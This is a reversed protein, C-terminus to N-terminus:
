AARHHGRFQFLLGAAVVPFRRGPLCGIARKHLLKLLAALLRGRLQVQAIGIAHPRQGLGLARRLQGSTEIGIVDHLRHKAAEKLRRPAAVVIHGGAFFQPADQQDDGQVLNPVRPSKMGSGLAVHPQRRTPFTELVGDVIDLVGVGALRKQAHGDLLRQCRQWGLVAADDLEANLSELDGLNGLLGAALAGLGLGFSIARQVPSNIAQLVYQSFGEIRLTSILGTTPIWNTLAMGLPVQGMMLILAVVM